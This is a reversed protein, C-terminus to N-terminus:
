MWMTDGPVEYRTRTPSTFTTSGNYCLTDDATVEIDPIPNVFVVLTDYWSCGNGSSNTETVIVTDSGNFLDTTIQNTGQGGTINGGILEWNYTNGANLTVNFNVNGTDAWCYVADGNIAPSPAAIVSVDYNKSIDNNAGDDVKLSVHETGTTNWAIDVVNSDVPASVINGGTVTWTYTFGTHNPVSYTVPTKQCVNDFSYVSHPAEGSVM